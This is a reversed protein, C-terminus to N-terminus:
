FQEEFEKLSGFIRHFCSNHKAKPFSRSIFDNSNNGNVTVTLAHFTIPFVRPSDLNFSNEEKYNDSSAFM